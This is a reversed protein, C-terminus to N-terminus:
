DGGERPFIELTRKQASTMGVLISNGLKEGSQRHDLCGRRLFLVGIACSQGICEGWSSQSAVGIERSDFEHRNREPRFQLNLSKDDWQRVRRFHLEGYYHRTQIFRLSHARANLFCLLGDLSSVDGPLDDNGVIPAGIPGDLDRFSEACADNVDFSLTISIGQHPADGCRTAV